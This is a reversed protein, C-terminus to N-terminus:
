YLADFNGDRVQKSKLEYRLVLSWSVVADLQLFLKLNGISWHIKTQRKQCYPKLRNDISIENKNVKKANGCRKKSWKENGGRVEM